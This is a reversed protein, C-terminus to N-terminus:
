KKFASVQGSPTAMLKVMANASGPKAGQQLATDYGTLRSLSGIFIVTLSFSLLCLIIIQFPKSRDKMATALEFYLIKQM